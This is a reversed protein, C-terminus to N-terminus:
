IQLGPKLGPQPVSRLNAHLERHCNACVLICKDLESKVKDFDAFKCTSISFDKQSPDLHHFELAGDYKHYGCFMCCGGKYEISMRKILRIREVTQDLTCKRCYASKGLRTRRDYFNDLPLDSNCRACYKTDSSIDYKVIDKTNHAGFPSCDLCFKRKNLLRIKDGIQLRIPFSNGCKKCTPM